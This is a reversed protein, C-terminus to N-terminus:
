LDLDILVNGAMDTCPSVRINAGQELLIIPTESMLWSIGNVMRPGSLQPLVSLLAEKNKLFQFTVCLYFDFIALSVSAWVRPTPSDVSQSDKNSIVSTAKPEIPAVSPHVVKWLLIGSSISQSVILRSSLFIVQTIRVEKLQYAESKKASVPIQKTLPGKCEKKAIKAKKQKPVSQEVVDKKRVRKGKGKGSSSEPLIVSAEEHLKTGELTKASLRGKVEQKRQKTKPVTVLKTNTPGLETSPDPNNINHFVIGSLEAM